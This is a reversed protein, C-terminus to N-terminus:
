RSDASPVKKWNADPTFAAMAMAARHTGAGLDRTYVDGHTGVLFSRLGSVGYEAPWAVLAYGGPEPVIRFYYGFWPRAQGAPQEGIAAAAFRPGMPSEGDAGDLPWYLGDRRGPTSRIKAAFEGALSSRYFEQADIYNRCIDQVASENRDIATERTSPRATRAAVTQEGAGDEVVVRVPQLNQGWLAISVFGLIGAAKSVM